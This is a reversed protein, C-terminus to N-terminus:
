HPAKTFWRIGVVCLAIIAFALIVALRQTFKSPRNLEDDWRRSIMRACPECNDDYYMVEDVTLRCRCRTCTVRDINSNM